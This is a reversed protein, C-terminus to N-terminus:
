VDNLARPQSARCPNDRDIEIRCLECEGSGKARSINDLATITRNFLHDFQGLATGIIGKFDDARCRHLALGAHHQAFAACQHQDAQGFRSRVEARGRQDDDGALQAHDTRQHPRNWELPHDRLIGLEIEIAAQREIRQDRM